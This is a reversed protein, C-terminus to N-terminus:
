TGTRLAGMTDYGPDACLGTDREPCRAKEDRWGSSLISSEAISARPARRSADRAGPV